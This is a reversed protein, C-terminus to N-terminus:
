AIWQHRGKMTDVEYGSLTYTYIGGGRIDIASAAGPTQSSSQKRPPPARAVNVM